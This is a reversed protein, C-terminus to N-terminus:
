RISLDIPRTAPASAPQTTSAATTNVDIVQHGVHPGSLDITTPVAAGGTRIIWQWSVSSGGDIGWCLAQRDGSVLHDIDTSIRVVIAPIARTRRAMFTTIPLTGDNNIGLRVEFVGPSLQTVVPGALSLRPRREILKLVFETQKAALTELQDAPPNTKFGPVFGGIEVKGLTPHDFPMWDVFGEHNRDRDSYDLWASDDEAAAKPANAGPPSGDDGGPGGRGGRGGGRGGRRGAGPPGSGPAAGAGPGAGSETSEGV